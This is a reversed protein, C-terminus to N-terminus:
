SRVLPTEAIQSPAGAMPAGPGRFLNSVSTASCVCACIRPANYQACAHRRVTCMGFVRMVPAAHMRASTRLRIM